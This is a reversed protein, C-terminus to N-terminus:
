TEEKDAIDQNYKMDIWKEWKDEDYQQRHNEIVKEIWEQIIDINLYRSEHMREHRQEWSKEYYLEDNFKM